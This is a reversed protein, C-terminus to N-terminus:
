PKAASSGELSLQPPPESESREAAKAEIMAKLEGDGVAKWRAPARHWGGDRSLRTCSSTGMKRLFTSASAQYTPTLWGLSKGNPTQRRRPSGKGQHQQASLEAKAGRAQDNGELGCAERVSRALSTMGTGAQELDARPSAGEKKLFTSASAQYAQTLREIIRGEECHEDSRSAESKKEM